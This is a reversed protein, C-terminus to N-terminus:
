ARRRDFRRRVVAWLDRMEPSKLAYSAFAFVLTCVAIVALLGPILVLRRTEVDLGFGAIMGWGTLGMLAAALGIRLLSAGLARGSMRGLRRRLLFVLFAAQAFASLSNALAIGGQALPGMLLLCAVLNVITALIAAKVPTTMDKLSYFAPVLVRGAGIFYLGLAHFFFAHATIRVSEADFRGTKFLLNIMPARIVILGVTAPITVFAILRLAFDLTERYKDMRGESVFGSFTPLVATSVAVVVIGLTFETLRASYQLAAVAGESLYTAIMQSLLVNIQYVGAGLLGPVMLRLIKMVAPDRWKFSPLLSVGARRVYPVQFFLQLAGGLMVGIAFAYVPKSFYPSLGIACLIVSLNMLIPHFSSPGFIRFSNLAAQLVAALGIFLLYFFMYRTLEATLALKEADAAFGRAFVHEVLIGAALVFIICLATLLFTFLTFFSNVVEALRARGGAREEDILVPVSAATMAGEGVLRRFLNPIMFAVTFADAMLSTGLFHARVIERVLGLARSIFTFAGMLGAALVLGRKVSAEPM